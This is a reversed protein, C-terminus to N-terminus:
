QFVSTLYVSSMNHTYVEMYDHSPCPKLDCLLSLDWLVLSNSPFSSCLTLNKAICCVVMTEKKWQCRMHLPHNDSRGIDTGSAYSVVTSASFHQWLAFWSMRPCFSHVACFLITGPVIKPGQFPGVFIM